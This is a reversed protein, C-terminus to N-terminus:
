PIENIILIIWIVLALGIWAVTIGANGFGEVGAAHSAIFLASALLCGSTLLALRKGMSISRAGTKKLFSGALFCLAIFVILSLFWPNILM